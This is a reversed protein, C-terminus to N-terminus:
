GVESGLCLSSNEGCLCLSSQGRLLTREILPGGSDTCQPAEWVGSTAGLSLGSFHDCAPPHSTPACLRAGRSYLSCSQALNFRPVQFASTSSWREGQLPTGRTAPGPKVFYIDNRLQIVLTTGKELVVDDGKKFLGLLAGVGSGVVAGLGLGLLSGDTIAGITGGAIAGRGAGAAAEKEQNESGTLTGMEDSPDTRAGEASQVVAEMRRTTGDPLIITDFGLLLEAQGKLCGPSEVIVM